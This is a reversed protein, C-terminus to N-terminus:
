KIVVLHAPARAIVFARTADGRWATVKLSYDGPLVRALYTIKGDWKESKTRNEIIRGTKKNWVHTEDLGNVALLEWRGNDFLSRPTFSFSIEQKPKKGPTITTPQRVIIRIVSSGQPPYLAVLPFPEYRQAPEFRHSTMALEAYPPVAILKDLAQAGIEGMAIGYLRFRAPEKKSTLASIRLKGVQPQKGFDDPLMITRQTLKAPELSVVLPKAEGVGITLNAPADSDLQYDIVLPAGGKVFVRMDFDSANYQKPLRPGRKILSKEQEAKPLEDFAKFRDADHDSSLGRDQPTTGGLIAGLLDLPIGQPNSSQGSQTKGPPCVWLSSDMASNNYFFSIAIEHRAPSLTASVTGGDGKQEPRWEGTLTDGTIKGAFRRRANGVAYMGEAYDGQVSITLTAGPQPSNVEVDLRWDGAFTGSCPAALGTQAPTPPQAFQHPLLFFLALFVASLSALTRHRLSLRVHRHSIM